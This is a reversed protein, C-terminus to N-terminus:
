KDKAPETQFIRPVETGEPLSGVVNLEHAFSYDDKVYGIYNLPIATVGDKFTVLDGVKGKFKTVEPGISLVRAFMDRASIPMHLGGSTMEKRREIVLYVWVSQAELKLLVDDYKTKETPRKATDLRAHPSDAPHSMSPNNM